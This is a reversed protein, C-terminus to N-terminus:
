TRDDSEDTGYEQMQAIVAVAWATVQEETFDFEDRLVKGGAALFAATLGRILAADDPQNSM